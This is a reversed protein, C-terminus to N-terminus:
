CGRAPSSNRHAIRDIGEAAVGGMGVRALLVLPDGSALAGIERHHGLDAQRDRRAEGDGSRFAQGIESATRVERRGQAVLDGLRQAMDLAGDALHQAVHFVRQQDRDARAGRDRHGAHHVGHEVEPEVVLGDFAERARAAVRAEGPVAVAAEDLHIRVDHEPDIVPQELFRELDGLLVRAEIRIGLELGIVPTRQHAFVLGDDLALQALGKRLVRM